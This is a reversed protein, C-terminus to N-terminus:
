INTLLATSEEPISGRPVFKGYRRIKKRFSRNRSFAGEVSGDAENMCEKIANALDKDEETILSTVKGSMGARGTRGIRHLFDITSAAFNCQIVHTINSIDM